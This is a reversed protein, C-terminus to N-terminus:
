ALLYYVVVMAIVVARVVYKLAQDKPIRDALAHEGVRAVAWALWILVLGGLVVAIADYASSASTGSGVQFAALVDPPAAM